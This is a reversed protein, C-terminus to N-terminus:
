VKTPTLIEQFEPYALTFLYWNEKSFHYWVYNFEWDRNGTTAFRHIASKLERAVTPDLTEWLWDSISLRITM